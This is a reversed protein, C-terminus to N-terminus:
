CSRPPSAGVVLGYRDRVWGALWSWGDSSALADPFHTWWHESHRYAEALERDPDEAAELLFWWISVDTLGYKTKGITALWRMSGGRAHPLGALRLAPVEAAATVLARRAENGPRALFSKKVSDPAGPTAALPSDPSHCLWRCFPGEVGASLALPFRRALADDRRLLDLVFGATAKPDRGAEAASARPFALTISRPSLAASVSADDRLDITEGGEFEAIARSAMAIKEPLPPVYPPRVVPCKIDIWLEPHACGDDNLGLERLTRALLAQDDYPDTQGRTVREYHVLPAYPTYIIRYGAALARVCLDTDSSAILYREDYGGLQDFVPKPIFQCAGVVAACNRYCDFSGFPTLGLNASRERVPHGLFINFAIWPDGSLVTGAHQMSGDPYLLKTGVVGVGNRDGWRVLEDIWDPAIVEIDNNLFLLADGRAARAGVNCAASYNFPRGLPVVRAAGAATLREYYALTEPDTSGSDVLVIEKHSCSTSELLGQVCRRILGPSNVTPIIVSVLPTRRPTWSIRFSGNPQEIASADAMGTRHLHAELVARRHPGGRGAERVDIAAANHYLCRAIRAICGTREALRLMLDWEAAEELGLDLGGAEAVLERRALTLRGIYHYGLLMEPSWAPKFVPALRTRGNAVLHDEDCYVVDPRPDSDVLLRAFEYLAEPSLCDGAEMIGLYDCALGNMFKGAANSTTTLIWHTWHSYTQSRLSRLTRRLEKSSRGEMRIMLGIRPLDNTRGFPWRRQAALETRRPTHDEIWDLYPDSLDHGFRRALRVWARRTAVRVGRNKIAAIFNTIMNIFNFAHINNINKNKLVDYIWPRQGHSGFLKSRDPTCNWNESFPM